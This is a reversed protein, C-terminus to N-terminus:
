LFRERGLVTDFGRLEGLGDVGVDADDAAPVGAEPRGQPDGLELGGRRDRKDFGVDAAAPRGPSVAAKGEGPPRLDLREDLARSLLLGESEHPRRGRRDVLQTREALPLADIRV